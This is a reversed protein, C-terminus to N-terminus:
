QEYDEDAELIRWGWGRATFELHANFGYRDEAYIGGYDENDLEAEILSLLESPNIVAKFEDSGTFELDEDQLDANVEHETGNEKHVFCAKTGDCSGDTSVVLSWDDSPEGDAASFCFQSLATWMRPNETMEVDENYLRVAVHINHIVEYDEHVYKFEPVSYEKILGWVEPIFEYTQTAEPEQVLPVLPLPGTNETTREAETTTKTTKTKTTKTKTAPPIVYATGQPCTAIFGWDSDRGLPHSPLATVGYRYTISPNAREDFEGDTTAIIVKLKGAGKIGLAKKTKRTDIHRSVNRFGAKGKINNIYYDDDKIYTTAFDTISSM